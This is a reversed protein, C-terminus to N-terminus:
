IFATCKNKNIGKTEKRVCEDCGCFPDYVTRDKFQTITLATFEDGDSHNSWVKKCSISSVVSDNSYVVGQLSDLVLKILNDLDPVRTVFSPANLLLCGDVFHSKPRKFYFVSKIEIPGGNGTNFLLPINHKKEYQKLVESVASRFSKQNSSSPSYVRFQGTKNSVGYGRYQPRPTGNVKVFVTTRHANSSVSVTNLDASFSTPTCQGKAAVKTSKEDSQCPKLPSM